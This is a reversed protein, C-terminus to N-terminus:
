TKKSKENIVFLFSKLPYAIMGVLQSLLIERSPLRGIKGIEDSLYIKNVSLEVGALTKFKDKNAKEFKYVTQATETIDKPSFVVGTQGPLEKPNLNIGKEEFVRKLLRKKTVQFKMGVEKLSKRLINLANVPLGSFDTILITESKEVEKTAHKTIEIKQTKTKPM